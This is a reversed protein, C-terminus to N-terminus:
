RSEGGALALRAQAAILEAVRLAAEPTMVDDHMGGVRLMPVGITRPEDDTDVDFREIQVWACGGVLVGGDSHTTDIEHRPGDHIVSRDTPFFEAVTVHKTCWPLLCSEDVAPLTLTPDTLANAGVPPTMAVISM